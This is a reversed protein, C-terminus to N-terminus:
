RASLYTDHNLRKIEKRLEEIEFLLADIEYEKPVIPTSLIYDSVMPIIDSVLINTLKEVVAQAM